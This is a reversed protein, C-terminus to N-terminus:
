RPSGILDTKVRVKGATNTNIVYMRWFRSSCSRSLWIYGIEDADWLVHYEDAVVHWIVRDYSTSVTAVKVHVSFYCLQNFIYGYISYDHPPTIGLWPDTDNSLPIWSCKWGEDEFFYNDIRAM